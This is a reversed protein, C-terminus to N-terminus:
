RKAMKFTKAYGQEYITLFYIGPLLASTLISQNTRVTEILVQGQVDTIRLRFGLSTNVYLENDFPNPFFFSPEEVNKGFNLSSTLCQGKTLQPTKGTEGGACQKCSDVFASGGWVNSCDKKCATQGTTGGVCNGCHDLYAIGGLQGACDPGCPTAGTTGAVCKGCSDEYATGEWYGNCDKQCTSNPQISTNGGSCVGCNDVHAKGGPEGNCDPCPISDFQLGTSFPRDTQFPVDSLILPNGVLPTLRFTYPGAKSKDEDIGGEKVFYNYAERQITAFSGDSKKYEAKALPYIFDLFQAKFYYPSSGSAFVVKIDNMHSCPVYQWKIKIRGDKMQALQPFVATTMDIDGFKCEPCEDVIKLVVTGMPGLVRVCAGCAASQAYQEHNLAAHYIDGTDVPIGCHGGNGGAVGGYHTGEGEYWQDNCFPVEQSKGCLFGLMLM